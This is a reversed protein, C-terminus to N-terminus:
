SRILSKALKKKPWKWIQSDQGSGKRNLQKRSRKRTNKWIVTLLLLWEAMKGEFKQRKCGKRRKLETSIGNGRASNRKGGDIQDDLLTNQSREKSRKGNWIWFFASLYKFGESQINHFITIVESAKKRLATRDNFINRLAECSIWSIRFSRNNVPPREFRRWLIEMIKTFDDFLHLLVGFTRHSEDGPISNPNRLGYHQGCDDPM